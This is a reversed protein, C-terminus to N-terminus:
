EAASPTATGLPATGFRRSFGHLLYNEVCFGLLSRVNLSPHIRDQRAAHLAPYLSWHVTPQEHHVTHYGNQFLFWNAVPSVFNRCYDDPSAADCHVHQIYNTFFMFHPAILAPGLVMAAYTGLGLLPGHWAIALACAFLQVVILAGVQVRVDLWQRSRKRRVRRVYEIVLPLQWAGCVLTYRLAQWFSHEPSHRDTRTVDPERNPFRHHNLVHTPIWAAIPCGYFVSLWASYFLTQWRGAFVSSHTQNHTFVGSCYSLYLQVPLLWPCLAPRWLALGPVLPFLVFVWLLTRYDSAFRPKMRSLIRAARPRQM